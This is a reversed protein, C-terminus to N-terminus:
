RGKFQPDRKELFATTGEKHDDTQMLLGQVYVESELAAELDFREFADYISRKAISVALPARDAIKAAMEETVKQLEGEPVVTNIMGIRMAEHADIMDGTFVLECAKKTGVLTPLLYSGGYDQVLGVKVFAQSFRAKESAIVIDCALALNCGAGVAVGNVMAIVPISLKRIKLPNKSVLKMGERKEAISLNVRERQASVDGGACFARGAGTIILVRIERDEAVEDLKQAFLLQAPWDLANLKDPRNLIIKAIYGEKALLISEEAM